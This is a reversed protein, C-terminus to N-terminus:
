KENVQAKNYTHWNQPYTKRQKPQDDTEEVPLKISEDQIYMTCREKIKSRSNNCLLEEAVDHAIVSHNFLCRQNNACGVTSKEDKFSASIKSHKM